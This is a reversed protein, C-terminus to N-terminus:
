PGFHVRCEGDDCQSARNWRYRRKAIQQYFWQWLPLTGPIHLLPALLYLRPMQTSLYRIGAAGVHRRGQPDVVVMARMLADHTLDPYREAVRPDHLSLFALKHHSDWAALRRVQRQCMQCNGDYIVVAAGPRDDVSPLAERTPQAVESPM